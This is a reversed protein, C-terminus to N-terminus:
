KKNEITHKVGCYVQRFAEPFAALGVRGTEIFKVIIEKTIKLYIEEHKTLCNINDEEYEINNTM